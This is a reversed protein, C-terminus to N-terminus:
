FNVAFNNAFFLVRLDALFRGPIGLSGGAYGRRVGPTGVASKRGRIRNLFTHSCADGIASIQRPENNKVLSDKGFVEKQFRSPRNIKYPHEM